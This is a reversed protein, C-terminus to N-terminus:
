MIKLLGYIGYLGKTQDKLSPRSILAVARRCSDSQCHSSMGLRCLRRVSHKSLTVATEMEHDVTKEM